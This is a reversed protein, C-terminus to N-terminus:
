KLGARRLAEVVCNLDNREKYPLAKAYDQVSFGPDIKLVESAAAEADDKRGMLSYTCAMSVHCELYHPNAQIARKFETVAEKYQKTLRYAEGLNRIWYAPPFPNLRIAKEL